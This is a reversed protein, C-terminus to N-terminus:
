RSGPGPPTELQEKIRDSPGFRIFAAVVVPRELTVADGDAEASWPERLVQAARRDVAGAMDQGDLFAATEAEVAEAVGGSLFRLLTV